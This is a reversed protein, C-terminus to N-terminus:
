SYLFIDDTFKLKEKTPGYRYINKDQIINNHLITQLFAFKQSTMKDALTFGDVEHLHENWSFNKSKKKLNSRAWHKKASELEKRLCFSVLFPKCKKMAEDSM